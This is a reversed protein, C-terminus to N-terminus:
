RCAMIRAKEKGTSLRIEFKKLDDGWIMIDDVYIFTKSYTVKLKERIKNCFNNM